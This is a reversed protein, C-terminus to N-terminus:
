LVVRQHGRTVEVDDVIVHWATGDHALVGSPGLVVLTEDAALLSRTRTLQDEGEGVCVVLGPRYGLGTTPAGGRPDIMIVGLVSAVSGVAALRRAGSLAEGVPTARWVTRAHLPSGDCLVVLDAQGLREVFHPEDASARDTVMLAEVSAGTGELAGAVALAAEAAGTFAAATPLVVVDAGPGIDGLLQDDLGARLAGLSGVLLTSYTM